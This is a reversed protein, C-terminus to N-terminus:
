RSYLGVVPTQWINKQFCETSRSSRDHVVYLRSKDRRFNPVLIIQRFKGMRPSSHESRESSLFHRFKGEPHLSTWPEKLGPLRNRRVRRTDFNGRRPYARKRSRWAQRGPEGLEGSTSIQRFKPSKTSLTSLAYIPTYPSLAIVFNWGWLLFSTVGTNSNVTVKKM